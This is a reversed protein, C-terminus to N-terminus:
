VLLLLIRACSKTQYSELVLLTNRKGLNPHCTITFDRARHNDDNWDCFGYIDKGLDRDDFDLTVEVSHYLREGLLKRGYWRVAEKCLKLDVKNPKGVTKLLM